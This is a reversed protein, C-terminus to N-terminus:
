AGGDCMWIQKQNDFEPDGQITLVEATDTITVTDGAQPAAVDTKRLHFLKTSSVLQLQAIHTVTDQPKVRIIRVAVPSGSGGARYTADLGLNPDRFLTDIGAAFATM